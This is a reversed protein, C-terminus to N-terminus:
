EPRSVIESILIGVYYWIIGILGLEHLRKIIACQTDVDDKAAFFSTIILENKGFYSEKFAAVDSWELVSCSLVQAGLGSAGAVVQAGELAPLKLCDAITIGM